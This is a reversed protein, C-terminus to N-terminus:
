TKWIKSYNEALLVMFKSPLGKLMTVTGLLFLFLKLLPLSDKESPLHQLKAEQNSNAGVVQSSFQYDNHSAPLM